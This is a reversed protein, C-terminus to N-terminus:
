PRARIVHWLLASAGVVAGALGNGHVITAWNGYHLIVTGTSSYQHTVDASIFASFIASLFSAVFGIAVLYCAISRYRRALVIGAAALLATPLPVVILWLYYTVNSV